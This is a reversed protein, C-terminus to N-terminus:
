RDLMRSSTIPSSLDQAEASLRGMADIADRLSQSTAAHCGKELCFVQCPGSGVQEGAVCFNNLPLLAAGRKSPAQPHHQSELGRGCSPAAARRM